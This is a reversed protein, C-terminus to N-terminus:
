NIDSLLEKLAKDDKEQIAIQYKKKRSYIKGKINSYRFKKGNLKFEGGEISASEDIKASLVTNHDKKDIIDQIYSPYTVQYKGRIKHTNTPVRGIKQLLEKFRDALPKEDTIYMPVNNKNRYVSEEIRTKLKSINPIPIKPNKTPKSNNRGKISTINYKQRDIIQILKKSLFLNKNKQNYLKTKKINFKSSFESIGGKEDIKKWILKESSEDVKFKIHDPLEKVNM